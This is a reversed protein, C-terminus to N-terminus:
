APKWLQGKLGRFPIRQEPTTFDGSVATGAVRGLRNNTFIGEQLQLLPKLKGSREENMQKPTDWWFMRIPGYNTLLERVQPVAIQEIYRDMSGNQASDWNGDSAGGPHYWDQAQSYYLGFPLDNKKCADAIERIVDRKFPTADAINYKSVKSHYMAFGDHHKATAVMYKMGARKALAALADADFRVPNFQAALKSYEAVSVRAGRM